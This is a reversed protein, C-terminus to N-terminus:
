IKNKHNLKHLSLVLPGRVVSNYFELLLNSPTKIFLNRNKGSAAPMPRISVTPAALATGITPEIEKLSPKSVKGSGGGGVVAMTLSLVVKSTCGLAWTNVPVPSKAPSGPVALAKSKSVFANGVFKYLM